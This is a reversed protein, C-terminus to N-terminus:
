IADERTEICYAPKYEFKYIKFYGSKELEDAREQLYNQVPSISDKQIANIVDKRQANVNIFLLLAITQLIAKM